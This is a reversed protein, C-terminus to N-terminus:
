SLVSVKIGRAREGPTELVEYTVTDGERLTRFESGTTFNSEHLFIDGKHPGRDAFCFGHKIAVITGNERTYAPRKVWRVELARPQHAPNRAPELGEWSVIDGVALDKAEFHCHRSIDIHARHGDTTFAM